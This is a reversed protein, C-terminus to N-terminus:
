SVSYGGLLQEEPLRENLVRRTVYYVILAVGVKNIVDAISFGIHIWNVNLDTLATLLYGVPYVGWFTVTTIAVAKFGGQELPKANGGFQQWLRYLCFVVVVYGVTSVAGWLLKSGVIIEGAATVQQEGIYGTLIMFFDALLMTTFLGKAQHFKARLLSAAKLLLLPTTVTWDMYRYQGIANYSRQMLEHRAASDAPLQGVTELLHHYYTQILLYSVGAVAAIVAGYVRSVRHEPAVSDRTALSFIFNGLFAYAAVTLFYYTVMALTGVEGATPIYYNDALHM